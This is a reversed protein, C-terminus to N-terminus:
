FSVSASVSVNDNLDLGIWGLGNWDLGIWDLWMACLRMPDVREIEKRENIPEETMAAM